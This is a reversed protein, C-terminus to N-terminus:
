GAARSSNTLREALASDDRAIAAEIRGKADPSLWPSSLLPSVTEHIPPFAADSCTASHKPISAFANFSRANKIGTLKEMLANHHEAGTDDSSVTVIADPYIQRAAFITDMAESVARKVPQEPNNSFDFTLTLTPTM